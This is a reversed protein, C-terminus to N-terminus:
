TKRKKSRFVKALLGKVGMPGWEEDWRALYARREELAQRRAIVRAEAERTVANRESTMRLFSGMSPPAGTGGTLLWYTLPLPKDLEPDQPQPTAPEINPSPNSIGVEPTPLLATATAPDSPEPSAIEPPVTPPQITSPLPLESTNSEPNNNNPNTNEPEINGPEPDINTTNTNDQVESTGNINNDPNPAANNNANSNIDNGANSEATASM